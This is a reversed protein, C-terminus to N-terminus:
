KEMEEQELNEPSSQWGRGKGGTHKHTATRAAFCLDNNKVSIVADCVTVGAGSIWFM